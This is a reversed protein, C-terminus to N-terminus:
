QPMIAVVPDGINVFDGAGVMVQSVQGGVPAVAAPVASGTTTRVFVLPDGQKVTQGATALRLPLVQGSIASRVVVANQAQGKLPVAVALVAAALMVLGLAQWRRTLEM